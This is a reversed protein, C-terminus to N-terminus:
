ACRRNSSGTEFIAQLPYRPLRTSCLGPFEPFPVGLPVGSRMGGFAVTVQMGSRRVHGTRWSEGPRRVRSATSVQGPLILSFCTPLLSQRIETCLNASTSAAM